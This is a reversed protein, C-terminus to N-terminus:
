EGRRERARTEKERPNQAESQVGRREQQKDRRGELGGIGGRRWGGLKNLRKKKKKQSPTESENGLSSHM